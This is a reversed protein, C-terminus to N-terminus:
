IKSGDNTKNTKGYLVGKRQSGKSRVVDSRAGATATWHAAMGDSGKGELGSAM